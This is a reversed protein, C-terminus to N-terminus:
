FFFFFVSQLISNNSEQFEYTSASLIHAQEYFIKDQTRDDIKDQTRDDSTNFFFISRANNSTFSKSSLTLFLM